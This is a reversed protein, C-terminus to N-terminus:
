RVCDRTESSAPRAAVRVPVDFTSRDRVVRLRVTEGIRTNEILYVTLDDMTYVYHDNVAVIVDGGVCVPQGRIEIVESGGRLGAEAAPSGVAVGRVLVGSEVPLNLMEALSAVGFGNEEPSVSIGLWPYEARQNEILQPAVRRITNAPVAFGVGAFVGSESRIATTIGMVLGESNLLPGGSSGPNIPADIQIISPNQFGGTTTAELLEASRLTRGTGSVIGMSMSSSLGFPNGITIARQGVKVSSSDGLPLPLLREPRVTVRLVALDSYRDVGVIDAPVNYGDHFTIRVERANNVVHANTLIHGRQDYIFGSGRTFAASSSTRAEVAVVSPASRAFINALLMYEADARGIIDDPVRTPTPVVDEPANLAVPLDAVPTSPTARAPLAAPPRCAACVLLATILLLVPRLADESPLVCSSITVGAPRRCVPYKTM